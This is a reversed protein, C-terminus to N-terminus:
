RMRMERPTGLAVFVCVNGIYTISIAKGSCCHNCSCGEVNRKVYLSQGKNTCLIDFITDM